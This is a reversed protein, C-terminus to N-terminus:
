DPLFGVAFYVATLNAVALTGTTNTKFNVLAGANVHASDTDNLALLETTSLTGTVNIVSAGDARLSGTLPQADTLTSCKAYMLLYKFTGPIPWKLQVQAESIRQDTSGFSQYVDSIVVGLSANNSLGSAAFVYGEFPAAYEYVVGLQVHVSAGADVGISLGNAAAEALSIVQPATAAIVGATQTSGGPLTLSPGAAVGGIKPRFIRDGAPATAAKLTMRSLVLDAPVPNLDGYPNTEGSDAWSFPFVTGALVGFFFSQGAPFSM